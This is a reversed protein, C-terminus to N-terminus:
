PSYYAENFMKKALTEMVERGKLISRWEEPIGSIGYHAGLLGGAIAGYTDTDGGISIAKTLGDRFSTANLLAWYAVRLSFVVHGRDPWVGPDVPRDNEPIHLLLQDTDNLERAFHFAHQRDEGNLLNMLTFVYSQVCVTCLPHRHTVRTARVIVDDGFERGKLWWGLYLALPASRMLAGNSPYDGDSSLQLSKEHTEPRLVRRTTRGAGVAKGEWLPSIHDYVVKRLRHYLDEENLGNNALLSQALAATHDSDDTPRGAPMMGAGVMNPFEKAWPNPYDFPALGRRKAMDEAIREATWTEYPAGLADGCLVGVMAGLYRDLKTLKM